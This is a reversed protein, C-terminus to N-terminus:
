CFAISAFRIESFMASSESFDLVSAERMLKKWVLYNKMERLVFVTSNQFLRFIVANSNIVSICGTLMLVQRATKIGM